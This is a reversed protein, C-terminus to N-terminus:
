SKAYYFERLEARTLQALSRKTYVIAKLKSLKLLRGFDSNTTDIPTWISQQYM